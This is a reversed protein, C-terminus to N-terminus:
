RVKFCHRQLRYSVTQRLLHLFSFKSHNPASKLLGLISSLVLSKGVGPQCVQGFLCEVTDLRCDNELFDSVSESLQGCGLFLLVSVLWGIRNM